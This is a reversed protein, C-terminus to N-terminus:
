VHQGHVLGRDAVMRVIGEVELEVRRQPRRAQALVQGAGLDAATGHGVLGIRVLFRRLETGGEASCARRRSQSSPSYTRARTTSARSMSIATTVPSVTASVM